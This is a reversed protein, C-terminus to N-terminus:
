NAFFFGHKMLWYREIVEPTRGPIRGAILPWRDGVLKYMRFILDEEEESMTVVKWEISTVEQSCSAYTTKRQNWRRTDMEPM